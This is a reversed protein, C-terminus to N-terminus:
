IMGRSIQPGPVVNKSPEICSPDSKQTGPLLRECGAGFGGEHVVM